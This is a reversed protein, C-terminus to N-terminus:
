GEAVIEDRISEEARRREAIAAVYARPDEDAAVIEAVVNLDSFGSDEARRVVGPADEGSQIKKIANLMSRRLAIVSRDSYGLNETRRDQIAGASECIVADHIEFGLGLGNTPIMSAMQPRNQLHHNARTRKMRYSPLMEDVGLLAKALGAKNLPGTRRFVLVFKWHTEDDIPVHWHVQHGGIGQVAGPFIAANPLLFSQVKLYKGEPANRTTYETFGYETYDLDITPAKDEAVLENPNSSGGPASRELEAHSNAEEPYFVHLFGLHSQDLNGENAQLYNCDHFVKTVYTHEADHRLFEYDPFLPPEGDGLFAFIIGAREVVPPATLKIREAFGKGAPEAPQETCQGTVDYKWGHYLCRLGDPECVGYSLDAGRHACYRGMLGVQGTADRFLVYDEGLITLPVPAAGPVVEESLAVPQWYRRMLEGCPDNPGTRILLEMVEDTFM